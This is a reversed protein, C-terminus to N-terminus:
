CPQDVPQKLVPHVLPLDVPVWVEGQRNGELDLEHGLARGKRRVSDVILIAEVGHLTEQGLDGIQTDREEQM